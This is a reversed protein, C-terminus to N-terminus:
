SLKTIFLTVRCLLTTVQWKFKQLWGDSANFNENGIKLKTYFDLAKQKIMEGTVPLNRERQKLFWKYPASEMKPNEAKRLTCKQIKNPKLSESLTGVNNM